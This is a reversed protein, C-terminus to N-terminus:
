LVVFKEMYLQPLNEVTHNFQYNSDHVRDFIIVESPNLYFNFYDSIEMQLCSSSINHIWNVLIIVDFMSELNSDPFSFDFTTFPGRGGNRFLSLFRNAKLINVDIDLALKLEFELNRTSDGFCSGREVVKKRNIDKDTNL